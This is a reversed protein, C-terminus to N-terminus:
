KATGEVIKIEDETLGYLRYVIQDILTDTFNIQSDLPVLKAKAKLFRSRIKEEDFEKFKIKNAHLHAFLGSPEMKWFEELKTKPTLSRAEINYFDKLDTLFQKAAARKERSLATMREALSALLDHVVDAREPKAALQEAVFALVGELNGDALGRQYLQKARDFFAAQKKEPTTFKIRRIPLRILHSKQVHPFKVEENQFATRYWFNLLRSCLISCLFDSEEGCAVHYVLNTTVYGVDDRAAVIGSSLFRILLKPVTQYLAAPKLIAAEIKSPDIFWGEHGVQHRNMDLHDILPLAGQAKKCSIAPHNMGCEAGRTIEALDGLTIVEGAAIKTALRVSNAESNVPIIHFPMAKFTSSPVSHFMLSTKNIRSGLMTVGRADSWKGSILIAADNDVGEFAVGLDVASTLHRQVALMKRLDEYSENTLLRKPVVEGVPAERSSLLCALECFTAALDFQGIASKFNLRLWNLLNPNIEGTRLGLWPPNGIVADFGANERHAGDENFFVEPFELEWHFYPKDLEKIHYRAAAEQLSNASAQAAVLITKAAALYEEESLPGDFFANTWLDAVKKYPALRPLIEVEWRKEKAKVTAVDRSAQDEIGQIQRITEAVVRKFDPGFTFRIQAPAGSPRARGKKAPLSGLQDLRAGILSNGFRLHHDLFNLPQDSAITTLWLSLKTLEVALPNLDVGYICAEVVRRRWYAIEVGEQSEGKIFEAQFQTTPHYVIRDALFTTAEVLFHGSGMAPDCINLKLVEDAFSNDQKGAVRAVKV